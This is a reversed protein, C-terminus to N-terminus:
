KIFKMQRKGLKSDAQILYIGKPLHAIDLECEQQGTRQTILLEGKISYVRISTPAALGGVHVTEHNSSLTFPVEGSHLTPQSIADTVKAGSICLNNFFVNYWSEDFKTNLYRFALYVAGDTQPIAIDKRVLHTQDMYLYNDGRVDLLVERAAAERPNQSGTLMYLAITDNDGMRYMWGVNWFEISDIKGEQNIELPPSVFWDDAAGVKMGPAYDHYLGNYIAWGPGETDGLRYQKWDKAQEKSNFTFPITDENEDAAETPYSPSLPLQPAPAKGKAGAMSMVLLASCLLFNGM